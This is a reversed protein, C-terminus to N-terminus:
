VADPGSLDLVADGVMGQDGVHGRDTHRVVDPSLHDLGEHYEGVASRRGFLQLLFDAGHHAGPQGGVLVRALDLEEILKGGRRGPLDTAHRQVQALLLALLSLSGGHFGCGLGDGVSLPATILSALPLTMFGRRSAMTAAEAAMSTVALAQLEPPEAEPPELEPPVTLTPM